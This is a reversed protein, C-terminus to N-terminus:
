EIFPSRKELDDIRKELSVIVLALAAKEDKLTKIEKKLLANKVLISIKKETEDEAREHLDIVHAYTQKLLDDPKKDEKKPFIIGLISGSYRLFIGIPICIDNPNQLIFNIISEHM